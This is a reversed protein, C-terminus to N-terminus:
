IKGPIKETARLPGDSLDESQHWQVHLDDNRHWIRLVSVEVRKNPGITGHLQPSDAIKFGAVRVDYKPTGSRNILYVDDDGPIPTVLWPDKETAVQEAAARQEQAEAAGASREAADASRKEHKAADEAAKLARQEHSAAASRERRALFWGLGAGVMSLFAVVASAVSAWDGVTM